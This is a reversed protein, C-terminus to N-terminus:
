ILERTAVDEPKKMEREQTSIGLNKTDFGPACRGVPYVWGVWATM